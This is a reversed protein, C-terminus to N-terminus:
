ILRSKSSCFVVLALTMLQAIHLDAGRGLCIVMGAGWWETKWLGSARGATWVVADFRWYCCQSYSYVPVYFLHFHCHRWQWLLLSLLPLVTRSVFVGICCHYFSTVDSNLLFLAFALQGPFFALLIRSGHLMHCFVFMASTQTLTWKRWPVLWKFYTWWVTCDDYVDAINFMM